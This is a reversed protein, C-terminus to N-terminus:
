GRQGLRVEVGAEVANALMEQLARVSLSQELVFCCIALDPPVNQPGHSLLSWTGSFAWGSQRVWSIGPEEYGLAESVNDFGRGM